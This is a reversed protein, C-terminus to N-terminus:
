RRGKIWQWVAADWYGYCSQIQVVAKEGNFGM